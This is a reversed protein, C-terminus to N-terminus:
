SKFHQIFNNFGERAQTAFSKKEKKESAETYNEESEIIKNASKRTESFDEFKKDILAMERYKQLVKIREKFGSKSEIEEAQIMLDLHEVTSLPDPRLAIENLKSKSRQMEEMMHKVYDFLNNLDRNLEAILADHDIKLGKAQEYKEKMEKYTKKVKETEYTLIYRANKHVTWSCHKSCVTCLGNSMASCHIKEDDDDYICNTHCTINCTLCNTVHLGQKLETKVQKTEEVEYEFDKNNQIDSKHRKMIDIEKKLEAQKSLGAQVQDNISAIFTREKEREKLVDKTQSLSQTVLRDLQKFFKEFSRCGMEWFMPSLSTSSAVNEAFLASNNFELVSGIPLNAEKLSALVPPVAGDAFTILTCINSEIDKGFLAMISSFIYRQSVSLRADPAKVIFCVADIFLVGKADTETFLNRIQSVTYQDRDIGRTDGFGPTDIINLAYKLRSGKRPEIRYM